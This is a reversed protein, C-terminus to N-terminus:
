APCAKLPHQVVEQFHFPGFNLTITKSEVKATNPQNQPVSNLYTQLAQPDLGSMSNSATESQIIKAQALNTAALLVVSLLLCSKCAKGFM